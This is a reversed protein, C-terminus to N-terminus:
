PVKIRGQKVPKARAAHRIRVRPWAQYQHVPGLPRLPLCIAAHGSVANIGYLGLSPNDYFHM